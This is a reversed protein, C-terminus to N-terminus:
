RRLLDIQPGDAGHIMHFTGALWLISGAMEERTIRGVSAHKVSSRPWPPAQPRPLQTGCGHHSMAACNSSCASRPFSALFHLGCGSGARERRRRFTSAAGAALASAGRRRFTSTAGTDAHESATVPDAHFQVRQPRAQESAGSPGPRTSRAETCVHEEWTRNEQITGEQVDGFSIGYRLRLQNYSSYNM